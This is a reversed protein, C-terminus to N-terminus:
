LISIFSTLCSELLQLSMYQPWPNAFEVYYLHRNESQGTPKICKSDFNFCHTKYVLKNQFTYPFDWTRSSNFVIWVFIYSSNGYGTNLSISFSCYYISQPIQILISTFIQPVSPLVWFYVWVFIDLHNKDSICFYNLPPLSPKEVFLVLVIPCGYAFCFM